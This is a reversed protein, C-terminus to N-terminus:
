FITLTTAPNTAVIQWVTSSGGTICKLTVAAYQGARIYGTVGITTNTLGGVIQQAANQTVGFGGAGKGNIIIIDGQTATAPLLMDVRAANNTVYANDVAFTGSTGTIENLPYILNTTIPTLNVNPVRNCKDDVHCEYNYGGAIDAYYQGQKLGSITIENVGVWSTTTASTKQAPTFDIDQTTLTASEQGTSSTQNIRDGTGALLPRYTSGGLTVVIWRLEASDYKLHLIQQNSWSLNQGCIIRDSASSSGYENQITLTNGTDNFIFLDKGSVGNAVGGLGTTSASTLRIYQLDASGLAPVVGATIDAGANAQLTALQDMTLDSVNGAGIAGKVTRAGVTALKANSVANNDITWTAGGASVTVDGKDGDAVSSGSLATGDRRTYEICEWNGSGLSRFVAIDGASTTINASTPLILSTANYTLQLIGSFKVVRTIGDAVNDFGAITTTGTITVNNSATAGLAPNTSSALSVSPAFNLSGTLTFGAKVWTKIKQVLWWANFPTLASTQELVVPTTQNTNDFAAEVQAQSSQTTVTVNDLQGQLKGIAVTVTDDDIVVSNTPTIDGVTDVTPDFSSGGTNTVWSSGDYTRTIKTGAISYAIANITTTGAVVIVSYGKGNVPTPDTVTATANTVYNNDNQAVFSASKVQPINQTLSVESLPQFDCFLLGLYKTMKVSYFRANDNIQYTTPYCFAPLTILGKDSNPSPIDIELSLEVVGFTNNIVLELPSSDLSNISFRPFAKERCDLTAIGGSVYINEFFTELGATPALTPEEIVADGVTIFGLLVETAPDIVYHAPATSPTGEHITIANTNDAVIDYYKFDGGTPCLTIEASITDALKSYESAPIYWKNTLALGKSVKIQKNTAVPTGAFTEVIIECGLVIGALRDQKSNILPISLDAIEQASAEITVGGQVMPIKEVGTLSSGSPLASIKVEGEAM